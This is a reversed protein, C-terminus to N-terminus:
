YLVVIRNGKNRIIIEGPWDAYEMLVMDVISGYEFNLAYELLKEFSAALFVGEGKVAHDTFDIYGYPQADLDVCKVKAVVKPKRRLSINFSYSLLACKKPLGLVKLVKREGSKKILIRM